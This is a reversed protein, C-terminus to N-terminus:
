QEKSRALQEEIEAWDSPRWVCVELGCARLAELVWEQEATVRGRDSKLEVFLVRPPRLLALDPWGPASRRSDFPHFAWWGCWRALTLVQAQFEKETLRHLQRVGQASQVARSDSRDM